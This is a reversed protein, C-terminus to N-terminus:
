LGEDFRLKSRGGKYGGGGSLVGSVLRRDGNSGMLATSAKRGFETPLEAVVLGFTCLRRKMTRGNHLLTAFSRAQISTKMIEAQSPPAYTKLYNHPSSESAVSQMASGRKRLGIKSKNRDLQVLFLAPYM